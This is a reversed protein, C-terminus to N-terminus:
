LYNFNRDFSLYIHMYVPYSMANATDNTSGNKIINGISSDTNNAPKLYGDGQLWIVSMLLTIIIVAILKTGHKKYLQIM